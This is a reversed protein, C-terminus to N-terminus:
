LRASELNPDERTCRSRRPSPSTVRACIALTARSTTRGRRQVTLEWPQESATQREGGRRSCAPSVCADTGAASPLHATSMSARRRVKPGFEEGYSSQLHAGKYKTGQPAPVPAGIVDSSMSGCCHISGQAWGPAGRRVNEEVPLPAAPWSVGTEHSQSTGHDSRQDIIILM